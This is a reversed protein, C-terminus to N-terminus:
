WLCSLSYSILSTLIMGKVQGGFFILSLFYIPFKSAGGGGTSYKEPLIKPQWTLEGLDDIGAKLEEKDEPELAVAPRYLPLQDKSVFKPWPQGLELLVM